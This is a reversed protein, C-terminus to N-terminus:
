PGGPQGPPAYPTRSEDLADGLASSAGTDISPGGDAGSRLDPFVTVQRAAAADAANELRQLGIRDDDLVMAEDARAGFDGLAHDDLLARHQRHADIEARRRLDDLAVGALHM